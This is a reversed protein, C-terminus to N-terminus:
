LKVVSNSGFRITLLQKGASAEKSSYYMTIQSNKVSSNLVEKVAVHMEMSKSDAFKWEKLVKGSESKLTIMRGTGATGCHSYYVTLEDKSNSNTLVLTKMAIPKTLFQETVLTNNLLVKYYDGGHSYSFAQLFFTMLLISLIKSVTPIHKM